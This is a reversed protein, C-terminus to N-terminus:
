AAYEGDFPTETITVTPVTERPLILRMTGTIMYSYGHWSYGAEEAIENVADYSVLTFNKQSLARDLSRAVAELMAEAEDQDKGWVYCRWNVVRNFLMASTEYSGNGVAGAGSGPNPLAFTGGDSVWVIDRPTRQEHLAVEGVNWISFTLASEQAEYDARILEVVESFKPM